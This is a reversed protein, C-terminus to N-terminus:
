MMKCCSNTKRASKYFMQSALSLDNSKEVLTDLKEGRELVGEITKHLIIKTEDLEKQIKGIKDANMPDQYRDLAAELLANLESDGTGESSSGMSGSGSGRTQLCLNSTCASFLVAGITRVRTDYDDLIGSLVSFAARSPYEEDAVAIAAIQNEKIHVHCFYNEHQVTQRQGPHTRRVITRCVFIIMERVSSRQFFGFNSVDFAQGLVDPEANPNWRLLSLATLKM